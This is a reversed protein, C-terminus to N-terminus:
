QRRDLEGSYFSRGGSNELELVRIDAIRTQLVQFSVGAEVGQDHAAGVDGVSTHQSQLLRKGLQLDDTSRFQGVTEYASDSLQILDNM